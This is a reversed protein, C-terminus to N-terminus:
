WELIPVMSGRWKNIKVLPKFLVIFSSSPLKMVLQRLPCLKSTTITKKRYIIKENEDKIEMWMERPRRGKLRVM